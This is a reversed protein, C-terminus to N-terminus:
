LVQVQDLSALYIGFAVKQDPTLQRWATGPRILSDLEDPFNTKFLINFPAIKAEVEYHGDEYLKQIKTALANSQSSMFVDVLNVRAKENAVPDKIVADRVNEVNISPNNPTPNELQRYALIDVDQILGEM